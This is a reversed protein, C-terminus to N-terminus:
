YINPRMHWCSNMEWTVMMYNSPFDDHTAQIIITYHHVCVTRSKRIWGTCNLVGNDVRQGDVVTLLIELLGPM